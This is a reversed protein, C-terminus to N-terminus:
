KLHLRFRQRPHHLHLFNLRLPSRTTQFTFAVHLMGICMKLSAHMICLINVGSFWFSTVVLARMQNDLNNLSRRENFIYINSKNKWVSHCQNSLLYHLHQYFISTDKRWLFVHNEDVLRSLCYKNTPEQKSATTALSRAFTPWIM